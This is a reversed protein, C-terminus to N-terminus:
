LSEKKTLELFNPCETQDMFTKNGRLHERFITIQEEPQISQLHPRATRVKFSRQGKEPHLCTLDTNLNHHTKM